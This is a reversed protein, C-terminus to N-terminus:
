GAMLLRSKGAELCELQKTDAILKKESVQFRFGKKFEAGSVRCRVGSEAQLQRVPWSYLL